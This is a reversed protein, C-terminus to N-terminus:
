AKERVREGVVTKIRAINRKVHHMRMFNDLQGTHHQFRLKFLEENLDELNQQLEEDTKERWQAAKIVNGEAM